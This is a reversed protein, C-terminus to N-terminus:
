YIYTGNKTKTQVMFDSDELAKKILNKKFPIHLTPVNDM